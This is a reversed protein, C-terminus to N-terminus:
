LHEVKTTEEENPLIENAKLIETIAENLQLFSRPLNEEIEQIKVKSNNKQDIISKIIKKHTGIYEEFQAWPIRKLEAAM